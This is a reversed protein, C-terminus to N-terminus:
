QAQQEQQEAPAAEEEQEQEGEMQVPIDQEQGGEDGGGFGMPAPGRKEPPPPPMKTGGDPTQIPAGGQEGYTVESQQMMYKGEYFDRAFTSLEDGLTLVGEAVKQLRDLEAGGFDSQLRALKSYLVHSDKLIDAIYSNVRMWEADRDAGAIHGKMDSLVDSAVQAFRSKGLM